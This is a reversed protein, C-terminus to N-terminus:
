NVVLSQDKGGRGYSAARLPSTGYERQLRRWAGPALGTSRAFARSFHAQDAFGCAAAVQAIPEGGECLMRTAKEVRRRMIFSHPPEGFSGRFARFFHSISLQACDALAEIRIPRHLNATIYSRVRRVNFPSLVRTGGRPVEPPGLLGLMAAAEALRARTADPNRAVQEAAQQLLEAVRSTAATRDETPQHCSLYM